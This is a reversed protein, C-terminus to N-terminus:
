DFIADLALAAAVGGLLGAGFGMGSGAPRAGGGGASGGFLGGGGGAQHAGQGNGYVVPMTPLPQGPRPYGNAYPPPAAYQQQQQPQPQGYYAQQGYAPVGQAPQQQPQGGYAYSTPTEPYAPKAAAAQQPEAPRTQWAEVAGFGTAPAYGQVPRDWGAAAAQQAQPPWQPQAQQAQQAQQARPQGEYAAAPWQQWQQQQQQQAAAAAAARPAVEFELRLAVECGGGRGPGALPVALSQARETIATWLPVRASGVLTDPGLLAAEYVAVTLEEDAETVPLALRARPECLLRATKAHPTAAAAGSPTQARLYLKAKGPVGRVEAVYVTLTGDAM